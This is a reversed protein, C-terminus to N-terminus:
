GSTGAKKRAEFSACRTRESNKLLRLFRNFNM